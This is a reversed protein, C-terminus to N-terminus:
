RRSRDENLTYRSDRGQEIITRGIHFGDGSERQVRTHIVEANAELYIETVANTFYAYNVPLDSCYEALAGYNEIINVSAGTEAVILSHPQYFRPIEEV